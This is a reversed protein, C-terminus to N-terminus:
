KGFLLLKQSLKIMARSYKKDIASPLTYVCIATKVSLQYYRPIHWFMGFVILSSRKLHTNGM